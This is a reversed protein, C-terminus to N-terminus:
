YCECIFKEFINVKLSFNLGCLPELFCLAGAYSVAVDPEEM